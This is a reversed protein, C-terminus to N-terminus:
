PWVLEPPVESEPPRSADGGWAASCEPSSSGGDISAEKGVESGEKRRLQSRFQLDSPPWQHGEIGESGLSTECVSGGVGRGDFETVGSFGGGLAVSEDVVGEM